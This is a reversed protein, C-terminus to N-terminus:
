PSDSLIGSLIGSGSLDRVRELGSRVLRDPTTLLKLTREGGNCLGTNKGCPEM